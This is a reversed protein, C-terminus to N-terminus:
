GGHSYEETTIDYLLNAYVKIKEIDRIYSDKHNCRMAYKLINGLIYGEFQERPLKAKMVDFAEIGGADYHPSKQDIALTKVKWETFKYHAMDIGQKHVARVEEDASRVYTM